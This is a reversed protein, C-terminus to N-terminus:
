DWQEVAVLMAATLARRATPLGRLFRVFPGIASPRRCLYALLRRPRPRQRALDFWEALPAPLPTDATDSIARMALLPVGARQCAAAIAATEMDVALAGTERFLAAKESVLEAPRPRSV